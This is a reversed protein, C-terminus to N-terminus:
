CFNDSYISQIYKASLIIFEICSIIIRIAVTYKVMGHDALKVAADRYLKRHARGAEARSNHQMHRYVDKLKMVSREDATTFANTYKYSDEEHKALRCIFNHIYM